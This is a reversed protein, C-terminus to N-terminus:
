AKSLESVLSSTHSLWHYEFGCTITQCALKNFIVGHLIGKKLTMETLYPKAAALHKLFIDKKIKLKYNVSIFDGLM